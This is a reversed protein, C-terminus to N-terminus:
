PSVQNAPHTNEVPSYCTVPVATAQFVSNALSGVTKAQGVEEGSQLVKESIGSGM